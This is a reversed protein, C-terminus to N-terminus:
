WVGIRVVSVNPSLGAGELAQRVLETYDEVRDFGGKTPYFDPACYEPNPSFCPGIFLDASEIGSGEFLQTPDIPEVFTDNSYEISYHGWQHLEAGLLRAGAPLHITPLDPTNSSDM